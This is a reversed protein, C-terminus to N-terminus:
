FQRSHKTLNESDIVLKESTIDGSYETQFTDADDIFNGLFFTEDEICVVSCNNIKVPMKFYNDLCRGRKVPKLELLTVSLNM